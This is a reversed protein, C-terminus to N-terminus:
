NAKSEARTSGGLGKLVLAFYNEEHLKLPHKGSLKKAKIGNNQSFRLIIGRKKTIAKDM